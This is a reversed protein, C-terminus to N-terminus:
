GGIPIILKTVSIRRSLLWTREATEYAAIELDWRWRPLSAYRELAVKEKESVGPIYQSM